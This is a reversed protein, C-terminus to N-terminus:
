DTFDILIYGFSFLVFSFGPLIAVKHAKQTTEFNSQEYVVEERSVQAQNHQIKRSTRDAVFFWLVIWM